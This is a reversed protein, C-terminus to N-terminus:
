GSVALKRMLRSCSPLSSERRARYTGDWKRLGRLVLSTCLQQTRGARGVAILVVCNRHNHPLRVKLAWFLDEYKDKTATVPKGNPLVVNIAVINDVALGYQNTKFSYGPGLRLCDILLIEILGDTRAM